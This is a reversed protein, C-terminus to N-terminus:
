KGQKKLKELEEDKAKLDDKLDSVESELQNNKKKSAELKEELETIIKTYKSKMFFYTTLIGILASGLLMLIIQFAAGATSQLLVILM